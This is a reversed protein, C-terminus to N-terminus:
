KKLIKTCIWFKIKEGRTRLDLKPVLLTLGQIKQRKRKKDIEIERERNREEGREYKCM